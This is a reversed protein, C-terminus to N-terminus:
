AVPFGASRIWLTWREASAMELVSGMWPDAAFMARAAEGSPARVLLVVDQGDVEGVPGGILIQGADSLRDIYAAHEDWGPQERRGLAPDWAPGRTQRVLFYGSV